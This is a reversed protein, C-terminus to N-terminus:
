PLDSKRMDEGGYHEEHWDEDARYQLHWLVRAVYRAAYSVVKEPLAPVALHLAEHILTELRMRGKQRPDCELILHPLTITEQYLPHHAQGDATQKGLKRFVIFPLRRLDGGGPEGRARPM